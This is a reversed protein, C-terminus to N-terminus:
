QRLEGLSVYDRLRNAPLERRTEETLAAVALHAADFPLERPVHRNDLEDECQRILQRVVEDAADQLVGAPERIGSVIPV